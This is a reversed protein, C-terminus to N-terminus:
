TLFYIGAFVMICSAAIKWTAKEKLFLVAILAAWIPSSANLSSTREAGIQQIGYLFTISSLTMGIVGSLALLFFDRRTVKAQSKWMSSISLMFLFVIPFRITNALIIGVYRLGISVAITGFAYLIATALAMVIGQFRITEVRDRVGSSISAIALVIAVTGILYKLLFPESLFVVALTMTFFPYTYSITYARSVGIQTMAKFLLTDAIGYGVIASIIVIAIGNPDVTFMSQLEGTALALPFISVAAFLVRILNAKLPEVNNLAKASVVTSGASLLASLLASIEGLMSDVLRLDRKKSWRMNTISITCDPNQDEPLCSSSVISECSM